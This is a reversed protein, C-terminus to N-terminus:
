PRFPCFPRLPRMSSIRWGTPFRVGTSSMEHTLWISLSLGGRAERTPSDPQYRCVGALKSTPSDTQCSRFGRYGLFDEAMVRGEGGTHRPVPQTPACFPSQGRKRETHQKSLTVTKKLSGYSTWSAM